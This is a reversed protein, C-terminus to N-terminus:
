EFASLFVKICVRASDVVDSTVTNVMLHCVMMYLSRIVELGDADPCGRPTLDPPAGEAQSM